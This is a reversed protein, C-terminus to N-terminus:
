KCVYMSAYMCVQLCVYKCAYMSACGGREKTKNDGFCYSSTGPHRSLALRAPQLGWNYSVRLGKHIGSSPLVIGARLAKEIVDGGEEM